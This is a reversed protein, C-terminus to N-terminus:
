DGVEGEFLHFRSCTFILSIWCIWLSLLLSWMTPHVITATMVTTCNVPKTTLPATDSSLHFCDLSQRMVKGVTEVM